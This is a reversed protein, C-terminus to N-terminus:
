AKIGIMGAMAEIKEPKDRRYSFYKQANKYTCDPHIEINKQSVGAEKLQIQAIKKIDLYKRGSKDIIAFEAYKQFYAVVEDGVEYHNACIGPGIGALINEPLSKYKEKMKEIVKGIIGKELGRWGAHVIGLAPSLSDFIFIPLCDAVTLSLFVGKANTVLADTKWIIKGKDKEGVIQVKVGHVLDALIVDKFDIGIKSFFNNRNTEIRNGIESAIKMNGDNKESMTVLVDPHKKFISFM